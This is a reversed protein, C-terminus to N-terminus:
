GQTELGPIAVVSMAQAGAGDAPANKWGQCHGDRTGGYHGDHLLYWHYDDDHDLYTTTIECHLEAHEADRYAALVHTGDTEDDWVVEAIGDNEVRGTPVGDVTIWLDGEATNRVVIDHQGNFAEVTERCGIAAVGSMLVLAISLVTRM